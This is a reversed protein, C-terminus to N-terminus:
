NKCAERHIEPRRLSESEPNAIEKAIADYEGNTSILYISIYRLACAALNVHEMRIRYVFKLLLSALRMQRSLVLPLVVQTLIIAGSIVTSFTGQFYSIEFQQFTNM